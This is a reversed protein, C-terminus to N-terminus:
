FIRFRAFLKIAGFGLMGIVAYLCYKYIKPVKYKIVEVEVREIITVTDTVTIVRDIINSRWKTEVKLKNEKISLDSSSKNNLKSEYYKITANRNSDCEILATIMASDVRKEIITDIVTKTQKVPVYITKTTACNLFFLAILTLFIIQKM